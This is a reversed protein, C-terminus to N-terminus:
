EGHIIMMRLTWVAKEKLVDVKAMDIPDGLVGQVCAFVARAGNEKLGETLCVQPKVGHNNKKSGDDNFTARYCAELTKSMANNNFCANSDAVYDASVAYVSACLAVLAIANM